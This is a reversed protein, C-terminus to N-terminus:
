IAFAETIVWKHWCEQCVGFEFNNIEDVDWSRCRPCGRRRLEDLRAEYIMDEAAGRFMESYDSM